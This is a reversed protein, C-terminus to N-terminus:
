LEYDFYEKQFDTPNDLDETDINICLAHVYGYYYPDDISKVPMYRIEDPLEDINFKYTYGNAYIQIVSPDLMLSLITDVTIGM